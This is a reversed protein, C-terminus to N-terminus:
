GFEVGPESVLSEREEPVTCCYWMLLVLLWTVLRVWVLISFSCKLSVSPWVSQRVTFLYLMFFYRIKWSCHQLKRRPTQIGPIVEYIM